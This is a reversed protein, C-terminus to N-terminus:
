GNSGGVGGIHEWHDGAKCIMIAAGRTSWTIDANTAMYFKQTGTSEFHELTMVNNQSAKVIYLIQGDVGGSLGGLTINGDTTKVYLVGKGAVDQNDTDATIEVSDLTMSGTNTVIFTPSGTTTVDQSIYSHDTGASTKHTTNLAIDPHTYVGLHTTIAGSAAGLVDYSGATATVAEADTYKPHHQAATVNTIDDHDKDWAGFVPDTEVGAPLNTLKSGDGELSEAKLIGNWGITNKGEGTWMTLM